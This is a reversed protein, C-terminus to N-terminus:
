RTSARAPRKSRGAGGVRLNSPTVCLGADEQCRRSDHQGYAAIVVVLRLTPLRV